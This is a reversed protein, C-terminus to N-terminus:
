PARGGTWGNGREQEITRGTFELWPQNFWNCLKDPGSVWIMVPAADMLHRFLAEPNEAKKAM